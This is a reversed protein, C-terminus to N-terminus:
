KGYDWGLYKSVDSIRIFQTNIEKKASTESDAKVNNPVGTYVNLRKMMVKGKSTKYPVMGRIARRVIRDPSKSIYPGKNPSGKDNLESYRKLLSDKKGIIIIDGANLITFM